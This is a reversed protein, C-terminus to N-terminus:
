LESYFKVVAEIQDTSTCKRNGMRVMCGQQIVGSWPFGRLFCVNPVSRLHMRSFYLSVCILFCRQLFSIKDLICFFHKQFIEFVHKREFHLSQTKLMHQMPIYVKHRWCINCLLAFWSANPFCQLFVSKSHKRPQKRTQTGLCCIKFVYFKGTPLLFHKPEKENAWEHLMTLLMSESHKWLSTKENAFCSDPKRRFPPAPPAGWVVKAGGM